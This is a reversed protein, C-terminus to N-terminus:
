CKWWGGGRRLTFNQRLKVWSFFSIEEGITAFNSEGLLPAYILSIESKCKDHHFFLFSTSIPTSFFLMQLIDFFPCLRSQIHARDSRSARVQPHKERLFNVRGVFDFDGALSNHLEKSMENLRPRSNAHCLEMEVRSRESKEVLDSRSNVQLSRKSLSVFRNLLQNAIQSVRQRRSRAGSEITLQYNEKSAEVRRLWSPFFSIWM